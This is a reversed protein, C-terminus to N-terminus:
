LHLMRHLRSVEQCLRADARTAHGDGPREWGSGLAPPMRTSKVQQDGDSFTIVEEVIQGHKHQTEIAKRSEVEAQNRGTEALDAHEKLSLSISPHKKATAKLLQSASGQSGVWERAIM